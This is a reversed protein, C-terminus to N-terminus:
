LHVFRALSGDNVRSGDVASDYDPLGLRGEVGLGVLQGGDM